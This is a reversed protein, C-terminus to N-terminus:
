GEKQILRSGGKGDEVKEEKREIFIFSGLNDLFQERELVQEWFYGSRYGSPHQPNGAGCIM